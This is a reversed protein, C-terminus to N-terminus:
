YIKLGIKQQHTPSHERGTTQGSALSHHLYHPYYHGGEFHGMCASSCETGRVRSCVVGVWAEAPTEQVTVPLDPDTEQTSVARKEQIKTHVLNQKHGGLTQKGLGAYTRM